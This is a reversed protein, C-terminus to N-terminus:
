VEETLRIRSNRRLSSSVGFHFVIVSVFFPPLSPSDVRDADDHAHLTMKAVAIHPYPVPVDPCRWGLHYKVMGNGWIRFCGRSCPRRFTGTHRRSRVVLEGCVSFCWRRASHQGGGLELHERDTSRVDLLEFTNERWGAAKHSEVEGVIMANLLSQLSSPAKCWAPIWGSCGDSLPWPARQTAGTM